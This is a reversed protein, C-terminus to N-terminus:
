PSCGAVPKNPSGIRIGAAHGEGLAYGVDAINVSQWVKYLTPHDHRRLWDSVGLHLLSNGVMWAAVQAHSDPREGIFAAALQRGERYCPNGVLEDTQMWDLAHLTQYTTEEPQRLTECGALLVALALLVVAVEIVLLVRRLLLRIFPGSNEIATARAAYRVALFSPRMM